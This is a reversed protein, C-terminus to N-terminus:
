SIGACVLPVVLRKALHVIRDDPHRYNLTFIVPMFMVVDIFEKEHEMPAEQDIKFISYNIERRPLTKDYRFTHAMACASVFARDDQHDLACVNDRGAILTM